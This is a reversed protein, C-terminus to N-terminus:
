TPLVTTDVSAQWDKIKIRIQTSVIEYKKFKESPNQILKLRQKSSDTAYEVIYLWYSDKLKKSMIWENETMELTGSKAFAKVEIYRTEGVGTSKIDYGRFEKSIDKPIRGQEREYDLVYKMGEMEVIKKANSDIHVDKPLIIAISLLEPAEPMTNSEKELNNKISNLKEEYDKLRREDARIAITMDEGLTSRAEYEKIRNNSVKIRKSFYLEVDARKINIEHNRRERVKNLFSEIRKTAENETRKQLDDIMEAVNNIFEMTKGEFNGSTDEFDWILKSDVETINKDNTNVFFTCLQEDINKGTGDMIKMHYTFIAGSRGSPDLKVTVKGGFTPEKCANIMRDMLPHGFAVFDVGYKGMDKAIERSFTVNPYRAKVNEDDVIIKPVDLSYVGDKSRKTKGGLKDFFFGIFREIDKEDISKEKSLGMQEILPALNLSDRILSQKEIKEFITKKNEEINTDMIKYAETADGEAIAKMIMDQLPTNSLLIGLVDFIREGMEARILELKEMLREFIEGERTNSVLLNFVQVKNEQKYRHLRGMRQEIRNPNWPLEYNIMIHCFQLNYGERAADTAIMLNTKPNKFKDENDRRKQLALGGHIVAPDYGKKEFIDRLYEHTDRYETFILVKEEPKKSLVGEVFAVLKNAKSDITISEALNILEELRNIEMKLEEPSKAATIAELIKEIREREDDTFSDPDDLSDPDELYRKLLSEKESLMETAKEGRKLINEIKEKRNKLSQTIAAISSVMRKQLIVMAFGVNRNGTKKAIDYWKHVYDTVADYLRQELPSFDVAITEVERPLFLATGDFHSVDEKLRRIMVKRLKEREISNEDSFMYPDLLSLLAYFAYSDGKHPTATLLLLGDTRDKLMDALKYRESRKVDSGYRYASLNHAEDFIVLDWKTRELQAVIEERKAYDISTIIKDYKEWPNESPPLSNMLNRVFESSYQWFQEDFAEFMERKWQDQLPSPTVILVRDARSRAELEKIVMGAMITKGLGTDDALLFRQDYSDIIKYVAEIQHPLVDIRTVSLSFFPDYKHALSFRMADTFLNFKWSPDFEGKEIKEMPTFIKEVKTLPYIVTHTTKEEPFFLDIKYNDGLPDMSIVKAYDHFGEVKVLDGSRVPLIM